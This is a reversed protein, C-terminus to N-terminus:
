FFCKYLFVSLHISWSGPRGLCRVFQLILACVLQAMVVIIGVQRMLTSKGGMNPGTVLVVQSDDTEGDMSGQFEIAFTAHIRLNIVVVSLSLEIILFNSSM